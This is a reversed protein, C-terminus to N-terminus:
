LQLLEEGTVDYGEVPNPQNIIAINITSLSPVSVDRIDVTLTNAM